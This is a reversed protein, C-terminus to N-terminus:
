WNLDKKPNFLYILFLLLVVVGLVWQYYHKWDKIEMSTAEQDTEFTKLDELLANVASNTTNGDIYKGGTEEALSRLANTERKTIIVQGNEDRKFDEYGNYHVESITAGDETGIGITTIQIDNKNAENAAASHNGENDEGDSLLIIKKTGSSSKSMKKKAEEVALLFDTGQRLIMESSITEAYIMASSHDTTLPMIARADGAFVVMGIREEGLQNLTQALIEKARELRSPAVDQANMSNSVDVLFVVNSTRRQTEVTKKEATVGDVFALVLLVLALVYGLSFFRYFWSKKGFFHKQFVEDAFQNRRKRRWRFYDVLLFLVLGVAFLLLFYRSDGIQINM